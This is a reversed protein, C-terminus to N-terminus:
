YHWSKEEAFPIGCRQYHGKKKLLEVIPELPEVVSLFYTSLFLRSTRGYWMNEWAPLKLGGIYIGAVIISKADPISLKPDRRKSNKITYGSFESADAFGIMDIGITEALNRIEQSLSITSM